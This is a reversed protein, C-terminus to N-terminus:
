QRDSGPSAGSPRACQWPRSRSRLVPWIVIAGILAQDKLMPVGVLTRGGALEVTGRRTPGPEAYGEDTKADAIQAVQWTRAVRGLATGPGPRLVPERRLYDAYAPPAGYIAAIRFGDAERLWLNGLKAGCLRVANALLASFVPDLEGPSSSIVQLVESTAAQQELADVLQKRADALERTLTGVHEQLDALTSNAPRADTPANSRKPRTPKRHQTKSPKRSVAGRRRV